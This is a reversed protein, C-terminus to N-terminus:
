AFGTFVMVPGLPNRPRRRLAVLGSGVFAWGVLLALPASATQYPEFDRGDALYVAGAGAALAALAFAVLKTRM